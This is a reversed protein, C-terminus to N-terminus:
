GRRGFLMAKPDEFFVLTAALAEFTAGSSIAGWNRDRM